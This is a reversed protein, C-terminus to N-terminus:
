QNKRRKGQREGVPPLVVASKIEVDEGSYSCTSESKVESDESLHEHIQQNHQLEKIQHQLNTREHKMNEWEHLMTGLGVENPLATSLDRNNSSLTNLIEAMKWAM